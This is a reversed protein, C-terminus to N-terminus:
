AAPVRELVGLCELHKTQPFLDLAILDKVRYPEPCLQRLNQAFSDPNCSVYVLQQPPRALIQQLVKKPLGSRPPDVVLTARELPLQELYTALYDETKGEIIELNALGLAQQNRRAAEIALPHEEIGIARPVVPACMIGFLGMGCYAELLIEPGFAAVPRVVEAVLQPLMPTSAQWFAHAPVVLQLTEGTLPNDLEESLWAVEEPQPQEPGVYTDGIKTTRILVNLIDRSVFEEFRDRRQAQLASEVGEVCIPCEENHLMDIGKVQWFGPEGPGHVKISNRYGYPSPSPLIARLPLPHLPHDAPFFGELRERKIALQREYGVHQFQCGACLAFHKCRPEVRDRDAALIEVPRLLLRKRWNRLVVGRVTEGPMTGPVMVTKGPLKTEGLYKNDFREITVVVTDGPRLQKLQEKLRARDGPETSASLDAQM